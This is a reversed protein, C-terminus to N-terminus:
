TYNNHNNNIKVLYVVIASLIVYYKLQVVLVDIIKVNQKVIVGKIDRVGLLVTIGPLGRFTIEKERAPNTTEKL